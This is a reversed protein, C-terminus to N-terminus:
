KWYEPDDYEDDFDDDFEDFEDYKSKRPRGPGKKYKRDLTPSKSVSPYSNKKQNESLILGKNINDLATVSSLTFLRDTERFKKKTVTSRSNTVYSDWGKLISGVKQTEELYSTELNYIQKELNVLENEIEEKQDLLKSMEKTIEPHAM